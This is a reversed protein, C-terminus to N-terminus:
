MFTEFAQISSQVNPFEPIQLNIVYKETTSIIEYDKWSYSPIENKNEKKISIYKTNEMKNFQLQYIITSKNLLIFLVIFFTIFNMKHFNM